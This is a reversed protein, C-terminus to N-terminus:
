CWVCRRPCSCSCCTTCPCLCPRALFWYPDLTVEVCAAAGATGSDNSRAARKGTAAAVCPRGEVSYLDGRVCRHMDILARAAQKPNAHLGQCM